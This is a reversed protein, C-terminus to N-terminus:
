SCTERQCHDNRCPDIVRGTNVFEEIQEIMASDWRLCFHVRNESLTDHSGASFYDNDIPLSSYEQEYLLESLTVKPGIWKDDDAASETPLGFVSRPSGPLLSAGMARALSEAAITPVVADGLGAQILLRPVPELVPRAQFGSAETSDWAMQMLALAIRVHRNNYFNKLFLKDYSGFDLSRTLVLTFPSGPSGLIGRDILKTKGIVSMYGGGLIGGQSIGYFASTPPRHNLTPISTGGFKFAELRLMGNQSFHQLCIKNAFGQILNDRVAQFLDPNGVLTRIVIPLDVRSMGRWDMGMTIYGNNNGMRRLFGDKMEERNGFLGHGFEVIARLKKGSGEDLTEKMLSCPIEVMAKAEGFAVAHRREIKRPDLFSYRSEQYLLSPVDLSLHVTRAIDPSDDGDCDYDETSVVRAHDDWNWDAVHELAIDRAARVPDLQSAESATVFDFLLQLSQPDKKFSFWPVALDVAPIVKNVFRM